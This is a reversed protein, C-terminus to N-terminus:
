SWDEKLSTQYGTLGINAVSGIELAIATVAAGLFVVLATGALVLGIFYAFLIVNYHDEIIKESDDETSGGTPSCHLPGQTCEKRQVMPHM